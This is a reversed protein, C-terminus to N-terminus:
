IFFQAAPNIQFGEWEIAFMRGGIHDKAELVTVQHGAQDLHYTATLGSIGGGVVIIEALPCM